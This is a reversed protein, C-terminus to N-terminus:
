QLADEKGKVCESAYLDDNATFSKKRSIFIQPQSSIFIDESAGKEINFASILIDEIAPHPDDLDEPCAMAKKLARAERKAKRSKPCGKAFHGKNHFIFCKQKGLDKRSSSEADKSIILEKNPSKKKKVRRFQM